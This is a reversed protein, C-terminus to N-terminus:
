LSKINLEQKVQKIFNLKERRLIALERYMSIEVQSPSYNKDKIYLRILKKIYGDPMTTVIRQTIKKFYEKQKHPNNEKWEKITKKCKEKNELRYQATRNRANIKAQESAKKRSDKRYEKSRSPWFKSKEKFVDVRSQDYKKKCSKCISHLTNTSKVRFNFNADIDNYTVNCKNCTKCM